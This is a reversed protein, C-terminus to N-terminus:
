TEAPHQGTVIEPWGYVNDRWEDMSAVILEAALQIDDADPIDATLALQRVVVGVRKEKTL